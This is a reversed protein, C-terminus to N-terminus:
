AHELAHIARQLADQYQKWGKERVGLIGGRKPEHEIVSVLESILDDEVMGFETMLDQWSLLGDRYRRGAEAARKRMAELAEM